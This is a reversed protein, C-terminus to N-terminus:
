EQSEVAIDRELSARLEELSNLPASLDKYINELGDTVDTIKVMGECNSDCTSKYFRVGECNYKQSYLDLAEIFYPSHSTILLRVPYHKSILTILEAYKLQWIPDLHIEPEDLILYESNNLVGGEMLMRLLSFSKMGTSISEFNLPDELSSDFYEYSSRGKQIDGVLVKAFIDKIEEKLIQDFYNKYQGSNIANVLNYRHKYDDNLDPFFPSQSNGSLTNLVFPDDIYFSKFYDRSISLKSEDPIIKNNEITLDIMDQNDEYVTIRSKKGVSYKSTLDNSFEASFLEEILTFEAKSKTDGYQIRFQINRLSSEIQKMGNHSINLELCIEQIQEVLGIAIQQLKDELLNADLHDGDHIIRLISQIEWKYRKLNEKSAIKSESPLSIWREIGNLEKIIAECKNALLLGKQMLNLSSAIVYLAKGVTSKGSNNLGAILTISKIEISSESIKGINKMEFKM